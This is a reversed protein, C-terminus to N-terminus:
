RVGPLFGQGADDGAMSDAIALLAALRLDSGDPVDLSHYV